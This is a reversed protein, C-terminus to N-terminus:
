SHVIIKFVINVIHTGHVILYPSRMSFYCCANPNRENTTKLTTQALNM